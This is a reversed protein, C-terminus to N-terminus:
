PIIVFRVDSYVTNCNINIVVLKLLFLDGTIKNIATDGINFLIGIDGSYVHANNDM